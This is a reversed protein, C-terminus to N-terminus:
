SFPPQPPFPSPPPLALFILTKVLLFRYLRYLRYTGKAESMGLVDYIDHGFQDMHALADDDQGCEMM